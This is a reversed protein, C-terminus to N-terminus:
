NLPFDCHDCHKVCYKRRRDDRDRAMGEVVAVVSKTGVVEWTVADRAIAVDAVAQWGRAVRRGVAM